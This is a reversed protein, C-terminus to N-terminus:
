KKLKKYSKWFELTDNAYLASRLIIPYVHYLTDNEKFFNKIKNLYFLNKQKYNKFNNISLFINQKEFTIQSHWSRLSDKMVKLEKESQYGFSKGFSFSFILVCLIFKLKNLSYM